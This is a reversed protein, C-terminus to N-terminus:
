VPISVDTSVDATRYVQSVDGMFDTVVVHYRLECYYNYSADAPATSYRDVEFAISVGYEDWRKDAMRLNMYNATIRDAGMEFDIEITAVFVDIMAAIINLITSGKAYKLASIAVILNLADQGKAFGGSSSIATCNNLVLEDISTQCDNNESIEMKIQTVTAAATTSGAITHISEVNALGTKATFLIRPKGSCKYIEATVADKGNLKGSDDDVLEYVDNENEDAVRSYDEPSSNTAASAKPLVSQVASYKVHLDGFKFIAETSESKLTLTASIDASTSLKQFGVLAEYTVGDVTVTGELPGYMYEDGSPLEFVPIEGAVSFSSDDNYYTLTIDMNVNVHGDSNPSSVTYSYQISNPAALAPAAGDLLLINESEISDEKIPTNTNVTRTVAPAAYAGINLNCLCLVLAVLRKCNKGFM